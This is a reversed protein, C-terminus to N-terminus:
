EEKEEEEEEQREERKKVKKKKKDKDPMSLLKQKEIFAAQIKAEMAAVARSSAVTGRANSSITFGDDNVVRGHNAIM